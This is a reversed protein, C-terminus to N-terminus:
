LHREVAFDALALLTRRPQASPLTSLAEKALTIFSRAEARAADIASSQCVMDVAQDLGAQDSAEVLEVLRDRSEPHLQLFHFVPLTLIGQRMDSGVPKGMVGEDGTFDLIDDVVQFAMGLNRGFDRVAVVEEEDIGGLVAGSEASAAFLSATKSFIRRYYEEEPQYWDLHSFVQRLEGDCITKLTEAFLSIVRPNGTQAALAAAQAFIYDGALVTSGLDWSANLTPNGRRLGANDILDDHVLTATHLMEVSAAAAIVADQDLVHGLRSSLITLAPRLRKGGSDLLARMAAALPAFAQGSVESLTAEVQALEERIPELIALQVM